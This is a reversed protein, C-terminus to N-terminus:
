LTLSKGLSAVTLLSSFVLRHRHVQARACEQGFYTSPVDSGVTELRLLHCIRCGSIRGALRSTPNKRKHTLKKLWQAKKIPKDSNHLSALIIFTAHYILWIQRRISLTHVHLESNLLLVCLSRLNRGMGLQCRYRVDGSFTGVDVM